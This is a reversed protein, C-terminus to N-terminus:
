HFNKFSRISNVYKFDIFFTQNNNLCISIYYSTILIMCNFFNVNHWYKIQSIKHNPKKKVFYLLM